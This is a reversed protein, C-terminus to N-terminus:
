HPAGDNDADEALRELDRASLVPIQASTRVGEVLELKACRSKMANLLGVNRELEWPRAIAMACGYYHGPTVGPLSFRGQSDTTFNRELGAMYMEEEAPWVLGSVQGSGPSAGTVTGDM